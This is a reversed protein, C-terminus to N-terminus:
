RIEVPRENEWWLVPPHLMVSKPLEINDDKLTVHPEYVWVSPQPSIGALGLLQETAKRYSRLWSSTLRMVPIDRDVGFWDTGSTYFLRGQRGFAMRLDYLVNMVQDQTGTMTDATGLYMVTCHSMEDSGKFEAPLVIARGTHNKVKTM